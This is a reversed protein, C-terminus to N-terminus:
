GVHPRARYARRRVRDILLSPPSLRLGARGAIGLWDSSSGVRIMELGSECGRGRGGLERLPPKGGGGFGDVDVPARGPADVLRGRGAGGGATRGDVRLTEPPGAGDAGDGDPGRGGPEPCGIWDDGRGAGLAPWRGTGLEACRGGGPEIGRLEPTGSGGGETM